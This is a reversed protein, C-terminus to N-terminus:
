GFIVKYIYKKKYSLSLELEGFDVVKGVLVVRRQIWVSSGIADCGIWLWLGHFNSVSSFFFAEEREM